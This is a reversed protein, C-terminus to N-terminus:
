KVMRKFIMRSNTKLSIHKLIDGNIYEGKLQTICAVNDEYLIIPMDNGWSLGCIEQIHRTVSILLVCERSVEHIAMIEVHNSSTAVMMQKISCWSIATVGCTFLYGTQSGGKHPDSLYGTDAYGILQSMSENSYFLGMDITGRLYRFLHKIGNWHRRTPSSSFRSLLSIPFAIDPRSNNTHYMLAGIVSFYPIEAGLLEEDNEHPCFPDKNIDFSRVVM